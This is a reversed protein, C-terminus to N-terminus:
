FNTPFNTVTIQKEFIFNNLIIFVNINRDAITVNRIYLTGTWCNDEYRTSTTLKMNISEIANSLPTASYRDSSQGVQVIQDEGYWIINPKPNSCIKVMIKGIKNLILTRSIVSISEVGIIQILFEESSINNHNDEEICRYYGSNKITNQQIHCEGYSKNDDIIKNKCTHKFIEEDCVFTSWKENRSKRYQWIIGPAYSKSSLTCSMKIMGLKSLNYYGSVYASNDDSLKSKCYIPSTGNCISYCRKSKIITFYYTLIYLLIYRLM